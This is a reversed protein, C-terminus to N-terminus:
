ITVGNYAGCACQIVIGTIRGPETGTVLARECSGCLWEIDTAAEGKILPGEMKEDMQLISYEGSKIKAAPITPLRRREAV